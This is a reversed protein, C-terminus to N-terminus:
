FDHKTAASSSKIYESKYTLRGLKFVLSIKFISRQASLKAQKVIYVVEFLDPAQVM